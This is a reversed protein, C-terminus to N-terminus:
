LTSKSRELNELAVKTLIDINESQLAMKYFASNKNQLLVYPFDIEVIEGNEIVMIRDSDVVTNLRHAVTLVTCQCFEKRVTGQIISDTEADVNATAEDLILIKSQRILARALCLLQRQGVSFNSGGHSVKANLDTIITKLKMQELAKWLEDDDCEDFPDLNKRVSGSFLVPDQPIISMKKRLEKPKIKKIDIDDITITGETPSLQFLASILSSKGAGTRGVIGIKERPKIHLNVNNLVNPENLYYKLCVNIFTIEGDTPWSKSPEMGLNPESELTTYELIREVSVICNEMETLQKVAFQVQGMLQMAQTIILGVYGAGTVRETVTCYFTVVTVYLLSVTDIWFGFARGISLSSYFASSQLDQHNHYEKMLTEENGFARITTLGELTANVHGYLPSRTIADVRMLQLSTRLYTKRIFYIISCIFITPILFLPNVLCVVVIIGFIGLICRVSQTVAAPVLEDASGLDKTFRNLIRGSNNATFFGLTANVISKLMAEHLAGSCRMTLKIFTFNRLAAMVIVVLTVACYAYVCLRRLDNNESTEELNVWFAAFYYSGSVAVQKLIFFMCSTIVLVYSKSAFLYDKYVSLSIFGTSVKEAQLRPLTAVNTDEKIVVADKKEYDCQLKKLFDFGRKQLEECSGQTKICGGDLVIIDDVFKLYQQHHTVLIVTKKNLFTLICNDLIHKGVQIDVASFPDDFLYIDAEKYVARALNIRAKQGGSLSTGREGVTTKDGYPLIKFDQELACAEIVNSYRIADMESGFLINQRVSGSYIWSDQSAYSITGNVEINGTELSLEKLIIQLLSSKGCGIPGVIATLCHPKIHVNLDTLINDNLWKASGDKIIIDGSETYNERVQVEDLSLFKTLRRLAVIVEGFIAIGQPFFFTLTTGLIFLLYTLTFVKEASIENNFLTSTTITLFVSTTIFVTYFLFTGKLYAVKTLQKMEDLRISSIIKLFHEEWAYMKILRIGQVVENTLRIREDRVNSVKLRYKAITKGIFVLLIIVRNFIHM